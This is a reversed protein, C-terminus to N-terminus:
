FYKKVFNKIDNNDDENKHIVKFRVIKDNPITIDITDGNTLLGDEVDTINIVTIEKGFQVNKIISEAKEDKYGCAGLMSVVKSNNEITVSFAYILGNNTQIEIFDTYYKNHNLIYNFVKLDRKEEDLLLRGFTKNTDDNSVFILKRICKIMDDNKITINKKM